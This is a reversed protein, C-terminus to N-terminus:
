CGTCIDPVIREASFDASRRGNQRVKEASSRLPAAVSTALQRAPAVSSRVEARPSDAEKAQLANTMGFLLAAVIVGRM